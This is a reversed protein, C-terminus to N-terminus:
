EIYGLVYILTDVNWNTGVTISYEIKQESDLGVIWLAYHYVGTTVGDKDLELTPYATPSTGNKRARVQSYSGTGITDARFLVQLIAFKATASTWGTLDHVTWSLSATRNTDNLALEPTDKWIVKSLGGAIAAALAEANTYRTHHASVNAKHTQIAVLFRQVWNM